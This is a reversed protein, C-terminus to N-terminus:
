LTMNSKIQNLYVKPRRWFKFLYLILKSKAENLFM